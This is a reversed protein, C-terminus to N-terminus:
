GPIFRLKIRARVPQHNVLDTTSYRGHEVASLAERDFERPLDSQVVTARSAKGNASLTFEVVVSGDRGQGDTPYNVSLARTPHAAIYQLAPPSSLAAPASPASASARAATSATQPEVIAAVRVPHGAAARAIQLHSRALTLLTSSGLEAAANLDREAVDFHASRTAREGEQVLADQVEQQAQLTVPHNRAISRMAALRTRANDTAPQLLAGFEVAAHVQAALTRLQVDLKKAAEQKRLASVTTADVGSVSAQAILQDATKLDGAAIAQAARQALWKPQAASIANAWQQLDGSPAGAARFVTLLRSADDLQGSAVDATIRNGGVVLLRKVGQLAEDDQPNQRLVQVYLELASDGTLAGNLQEPLLRQDRFAVRAASLLELVNRAPSASPSALKLEPAAGAPATAVAPPTNVATRHHRLAAYRPYLGVASAGLVVLLAAAGAWVFKRQSRSTFHQPLSSVVRPKGVNLEQRRQFSLRDEAALLAQGLRGTTLQNRSIAALVAGRAISGVWAEPRATIVILPCRPYRAELGSLTGHAGALADADVIGIWRAADVQADISDVTDIAHVRYRDGLQTGLEILLADDSGIVLVDSRESLGTAVNPLPPRLAANM